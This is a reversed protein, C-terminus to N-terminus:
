SLISSQSLVTNYRPLKQDLDVNLFPNKNRSSLNGEDVDEDTMDEQEKLRNKINIQEALVQRLEEEEVDQDQKEEEDIQIEEQIRQQEQEEAQQKIVDLQEKLENMLEQEAENEQEYEGQEIQKQLYAILDTTKKKKKKKKKTNTEQNSSTDKEKSADKEKIADNDEGDQSESYEESEDEGDILGKQNLLQKLSYKGLLNVEADEKNKIFDLQIISKFFDLPQISNGNLKSKRRKERDKKRQKIIKKKKENMRKHLLEREIDDLEDEIIGAFESDQSMRINEDDASNSTEEEEEEEQEGEEEEDDSEDNQNNRKKTEKKKKKVKKINRGKKKKKKIKKDFVHIDGLEAIQNEMEQIKDEEEEEDGFEDITYTPERKKVDVFSQASMAEIPYLKIDLRIPPYANSDLSNIPTNACTLYTRSINGQKLREQYLDSGEDALLAIAIGKLLLFTRKLNVISNDKKNQLIPGASKQAYKKMATESSEVKIIPAYFECIVAPHGGFYVSPDFYSFITDSFGNRNVFSISVIESAIDEDEDGKKNKDDKKDNNQDQKDDDQKSKSKSENRKHLQISINLPPPLPTCYYQSIIQSPPLSFLPPAPFSFGQTVDIKPKKKVYYDDDLIHERKTKDKLNNIVYKLERRFKKRSDLKVQKYIANINKQSSVNRSSLLPHADPANLFPNLKAQSPRPSVSRQKIDGYIDEDYEENIQEDVNLDENPIITSEFEYLMYDIDSPITTLCFMDIPPLYSPDQKKKDNNNINIFHISRKTLYNPNTPSKMPAPYSMSDKDNNDDDENEDNGDQNIQNYYEEDEDDQNYQDDEDGEGVEGFEELYNKYYQDQEIMRIYDVDGHKLLYQKNTENYSVISRQNSGSSSPRQNSESSSPRQNSGSSSPRQNSESSSPRKQQVQEEPQFSQQPLQQQQHEPSTDPSQTINSSPQQSSEKKKQKEQEKKEKKEKEKKEKELRIKEEKEMKLQEKIEKEKMTKSKFTGENEDKNVEEIKLKPWKGTGKKWQRIPRKVIPVCTFSLSKRSYGDNTEIDFEDIEDADENGQRKMDQLWKDEDNQEDIGFEEKRMQIEQKKAEDLVQEWSGMCDGTVRSVIIPPYPAAQGQVPSLYLNMQMGIRPVEFNRRIMKIHHVCLGVCVAYGRQEDVFRMLYVDGQRKAAELLPIAFTTLSIERFTYQQQQQQINFQDNESTPQPAPYSQTYSSPSRSIPVYQSSQSQVM